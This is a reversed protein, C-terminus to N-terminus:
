FKSLDRGFVLARLRDLPVLVKNKVSMLGTFAASRWLQYALWGSVKRARGRSEAVARGGGIFSSVGRDRWAFPGTAQGSARRNLLTGVYRGQQEAVQALQPLDQDAPCACDGLAFVAENSQVRLHDDTIIRGTRDRAFALAAILPTPAFGASWLVLGAPLVEDGELRVFGPGIERVRTGTRVVIGQHEFQRAAYDRLSADYASLVAAGAEVVTIRVQGALDPYHRGIDAAILDHLEAAFRVGTPGAGVSVFHLLREREGASTAPLSAHELNAILRERIVRADSLEKLFCAHERVGPVGFTNIDAGVCLALIDYDIEWELNGELSRCRARRSDMDIAEVSGLMFRAGGRRRRVPEIITRFEITGVATSPLLPTYLFHNRRSVITVAHARPNLTKLLALAAFGSGAILVRPPTASM